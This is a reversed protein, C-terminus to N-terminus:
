CYRGGTGPVSNGDISCDPKLGNGSGYNREDTFNPGGGLEGVFVGQRGTQRGNNIGQNHNLHNASGNVRIGDAGNGRCYNRTLTNDNGFVFIGQTVNNHCLNRELSNNNFPRSNDDVFIGLFNNRVFVRSITNNSTNDIVIGFRCFEIIGGVITVADGDISIGRTLESVGGCRIKSSSMDLRVGSAISLGHDGRCVESVVPDFSNLVTDTIVTDGCACPTDPFGIGADADGCDKAWASITSLTSLLAVAFLLLGIRKAVKM